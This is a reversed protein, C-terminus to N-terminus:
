PQQLITEVQRALELDLATIGQVTHTWFRITLKGWALILEPHHDADESLQAIVNLRALGDLYSQAAYERALANNQVQWGPLHVLAEHLADVSLLSTAHRM